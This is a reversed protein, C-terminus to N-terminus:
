NGQLAVAGATLLFVEREVHQIMEDEGCITKYVIWFHSHGMWALMSVHKNLVVIQRYENQSTKSKWYKFHGCECVNCILKTACETYCFLNRMLDVKNVLGYALICLSNLAAFM